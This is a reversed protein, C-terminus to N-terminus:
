TRGGCEMYSSSRCTGLRIADGKALGANQQIFAWDKNLNIVNRM